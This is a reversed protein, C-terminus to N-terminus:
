EVILKKVMQHGESEISVFYVGVSLVSIDIDLNAATPQQVILQQGFSNYLVVKDIISKGQIQFTGSAPNPYVAVEIMEEDTVSLLSSDGFIINDFYIINDSPRDQFDPFVIIQDIGNSSPEGIIGTFDFVLREWQDILTNSIKIEGTSAGAPTAFKFGVDSIVSKYVMISVFANEPSLSFTGVDSGHMTECGAFPMGLDLATFKAVTSSTNIGSPDPNAVIELPPNTDNEFVTWTWDAGNGGTEFDVPNVQGYNLTSICILLVLYFYKM